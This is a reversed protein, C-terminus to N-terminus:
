SVLFEIQFEPGFIEDKDGVPLMKEYNMGNFLSLTYNLVSANVLPFLTRNTFEMIKSTSINWYAPTLQVGYYRLDKGTVNEAQSFMKLASINFIKDRVGWDSTVRWGVIEGTTFNWSKGNHPALPDPM